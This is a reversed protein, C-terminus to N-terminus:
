RRIGQAGRDRAAGFSGVRITALHLKLAERTAGAVPGEARWIGIRVAVALRLAADALQYGLAHAEIASKAGLARYGLQALPL